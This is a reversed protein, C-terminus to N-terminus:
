WSQDGYHTLPSGPAESSHDKTVGDLEFSQGMARTGPDEPGDPGDPGRPGDPAAPDLPGDPATPAAPGAPAVPSDEVSAPNKDHSVASIM